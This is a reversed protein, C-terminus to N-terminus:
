HQMFSYDSFKLSFRMLWMFEEYPYFTSNKNDFTNTYIAVM